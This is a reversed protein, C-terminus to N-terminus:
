LVFDQSIPNEYAEELRKRICQEVHGNVKGGYYQSAFYCPGFLLVFRLIGRTYGHQKYFWPFRGLFFQTVLGGALAYGQRENKKEVSKSLEYYDDITMFEHPPLNQLSEYDVDTNYRVVRYQNLKPNYRLAM